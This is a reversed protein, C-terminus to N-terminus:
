EKGDNESEEHRERKKRKCITSIASIMMAADAISGYEYNPLELDGKHKNAPNKKNTRWCKMDSVTLREITRQTRKDLISM